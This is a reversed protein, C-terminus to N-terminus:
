KVEKYRVSDVESDFKQIERLLESAFFTYWKTTQKQGSVKAVNMWEHIKDKLRMRLLNLRMQQSKCHPCEHNM